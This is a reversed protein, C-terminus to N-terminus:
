HRDTGPIHLNLSPFATRFLTPDFTLLTAGRYLAHAGIIFDALIRRPGRDHRQARRREAYNRYAIGASRWVAEDLGWDVMIPARDLFEDITAIDREPAALLEAYVPAAIVLSDHRRLRNLSQQAAQAQPVRGTWLAVLINTDLVTTM